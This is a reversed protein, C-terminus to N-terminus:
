ELGAAAIIELYTAYDVSYVVDSYETMYYIKEKGEAADDESSGMETIETFKNGFHVTFTDDFSIQAGSTGSETTVDQYRIYDLKVSLSPSDLGYTVKEEDTVSYDVAYRYELHLDFFLAAMIKEVPSYNITGDENKTAASEPIELEIVSDGSTVTMATIDEVDPDPVDYSVFLDAKTYSFYAFIANNVMYVYDSGDQYFYYYGTLANQNGIRFRNSYTGEDNTYTATIDFLPKDFGYATISDETYNLRRFGGYDSISQAMYFLKAEDLPFEPDDSIIWCDESLEFSITEGQYTYSLATLETYDEDAVTFTGIDMLPQTDTTDTKDGSGITNTVAFYVVILLLLIAAAVAVTIMQKREKRKKSNM